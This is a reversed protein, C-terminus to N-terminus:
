CPHIRVETTEEEMVAVGVESEARKAVFKEVGRGMDCDQPVIYHSINQLIIFAPAFNCKQNRLM